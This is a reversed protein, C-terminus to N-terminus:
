NSHKWIFTCAPFKMIRGRGIILITQRRTHSAWKLIAWCFLSGWITWQKVERCCPGLCGCSLGAETASGEQHDFRIRWYWLLVKSLHPVFFVAFKRLNAQHITNNTSALYAQGLWSAGWGRMTRVLIGAVVACSCWSTPATTTVELCTIEIHWYHILWPVAEWILTLKSSINPDPIILDVFELAIISSVKLWTELHCHTNWTRPIQQHLIVRKWLKSCHNSCREVSSSQVLLRGM